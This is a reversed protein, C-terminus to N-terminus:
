AYKRVIIKPRQARSARGYSDDKQILVTKIHIQYDAYQFKIQSLNRAYDPAKVPLFLFFVASNKSTVNIYPRSLNKANVTSSFGSYILTEPHWTVIYSKKGFSATSASLYKQHM